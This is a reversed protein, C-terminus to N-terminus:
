AEPTAKLAAELATVLARMEESRQQEPDCVGEANMDTALNVGVTEAISNMTFNKVVPQWAAISAAGGSYSYGVFAVPKGRWEAGLLDVANKFAGPISSNYEATVFIYGDCPDIVDSWAQVAQDSYNKNADMPMIDSVMFPLNFSMLDILEYTIEADTSHTRVQEQVWQAIREGTRGQRTSGLIIGIKM